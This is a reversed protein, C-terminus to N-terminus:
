PWSHYWKVGERNLVQGVGDLLPLCYWLLFFHGFAVNTMILHFPLGFAVNTMVLDFPLGFAVSTMVLYEYYYEHKGGWCKQHSSTLYFVDQATEQLVTMCFVCLKWKVRDCSESHFEPQGWRALLLLTASQWGPYTCALYKRTETVWRVRVHIVPDKYHTCSRRCQTCVGTKLTMRLSIAKVTMQERIKM